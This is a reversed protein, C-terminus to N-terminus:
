GYASILNQKKKFTKKAGPKVYKWDHQSYKIYNKITDATVAWVSRYFKGPSWMHGKKYLKRLWPFRKRLIRSTRGKIKHFADSVSITPPLEVFLHIHDEMVELELVKCDNYYCTGRILAECMKNIPKPKLAHWRYKPCWVFHFSNQGVSHKNNKFSNM